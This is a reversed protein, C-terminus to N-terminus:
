VSLGVSFSLFYMKYFRGPMTINHCLFCCFSLCRSNPWATNGSLTLYHYIKAYRHIQAQFQLDFLQSLWVNPEQGPLCSTEEQVGETSQQLGPLLKRLKEASEPWIHNCSVKRIAQSFDTNPSTKIIEDGGPIIQLFM